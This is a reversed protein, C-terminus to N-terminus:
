MAHRTAAGGYWRMLGIRPAAPTVGAAGKTVSGDHHIAVFVDCHCSGGVKGADRGPREPIPDLSALQRCNGALM